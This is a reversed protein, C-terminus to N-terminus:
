ANSHSFSDSQAPKPSKTAQTAQLHMTPVPFGLM